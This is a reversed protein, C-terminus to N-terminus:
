NRRAVKLMVEITQQASNMHVLVKNKDETQSNYMIVSTDEVQAVAQLGFVEALQQLWHRLNSWFDGDSMGDLVAEFGFVSSVLDIKFQVMLVGAGTLWVGRFEEKMKEETV